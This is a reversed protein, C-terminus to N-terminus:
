FHELSFILIATDRDMDYMRLLSSNYEWDEYANYFNPFANKGFRQLSIISLLWHSNMSYMLSILEFQFFYLRVWFLFGLSMIVLFKIMYYIPVIIMICAFCLGFRIYDLIFKVMGYWGERERISGRCNFPGKLFPDHLQKCFIVM